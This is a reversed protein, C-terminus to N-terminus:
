CHLADALRRNDTIFAKIKKFVWQCKGHHVTCQKNQNSRVHAAIERSSFNCGRMTIVDIFHMLLWMLFVGRQAM